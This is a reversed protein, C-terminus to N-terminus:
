EGVWGVVCVWGVALLKQYPEYAVSDANDPFGIHCVIEVDVVESGLLQSDMLHARTERVKSVQTNLKRALTKTANGIFNGDKPAM